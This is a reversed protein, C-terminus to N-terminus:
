QGSGGVRQGGRSGSGVSPRRHVAGRGGSRFLMELVPRLSSLAARCTTVQPVRAGGAYRLLQRGPPRNRRARRAGACRPLRLRRHGPRHRPVRVRQRESGGSRRLQM